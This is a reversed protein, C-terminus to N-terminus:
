NQKGAPAAAPSTMYIRARWNPDYPANDGIAINGTWGGITATTPNPLSLRHSAENLGAEAAYLASTSLRQNGSIKLDTSAVMALVSGMVAAAFILMMAIVLVSGREGTSVPKALTTIEESHM